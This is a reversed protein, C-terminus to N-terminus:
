FIKDIVEMLYARDVEDPNKARLLELVQAFYASDVGILQDELVSFSNLNLKSVDWAIKLYQGATINWGRKIFKRTRIMACIPYHSGGLYRLDHALIAELAGAPLSLFRTASDWHCTCHVFDYTTHITEPEGYFRLIVQVKHSLTIANASLFMPRYKDKSKDATATEQADTTVQDVFTASAEDGAQQEFYQYDASGGEGAIGSSKVVIKIRDGAGDVSIGVLRNPQDKFRTPPNEKFQKVYYEAVALATERNRFYLDFDNVDEGLLMSVICGGTVITNSAALKRVQEDKISELWDDVKRGIAMRIWKAKM